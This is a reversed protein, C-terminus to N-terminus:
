EVKNDTSLVSADYTAFKASLASGVASNPVGLAPIGVVDIVATALIDTVEQLFEKLKDGKPISHSASKSGVKVKGGADLVIDKEAKVNLNPANVEVDGTAEITITGDEAIIITTEGAEVSVKLNNRAVLRVEDAKVVVYSADDIADGPGVFNTDGNTKASIYIRAADDAINPDEGVRGAVLDITGSKEKIGSDPTDIRDHSLVIMSNNSGHLVHDGSRALFEPIDEEIVFNPDTKAVGPDYDLDQVAQEAGGNNDIKNDSDEVFRKTGPTLNLDHIEKPEPVRCLWVGHINRLDEFFVYAHESEKIPPIAHQNIPWYVTLKDKPTYRDASASIIRGVFSGKPNPPEKPRLTGPGALEGGVHDIELVSVKLLAPEGGLRGAVYDNILKAFIQNPNQLDKSTLRSRSM